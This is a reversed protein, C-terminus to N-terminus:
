ATHQVSLVAEISSCAPDFLQVDRPYESPDHPRLFFGRITGELILARHLMHFLAKYFSRSRIADLALALLVAGLFGLIWLYSESVCSLIVCIVAAFGVFAPMMVWGRERLYRTLLGTRLHYRMVQGYGLFLRRKRRALLASMTAPAYGYHRVSPCSLEVIRYGEHRIRLCLEPEEDSIIFPNWTGAKDLAERRFM